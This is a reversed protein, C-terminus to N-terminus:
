SKRILLNSANKGIKRVKCATRDPHELLGQAERTTVALIRTILERVALAPTTSPVVNM